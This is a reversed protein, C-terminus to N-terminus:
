ANLKELILLKIHQIRELLFRHILDGHCDQSLIALNDSSSARSLAAECHTLDLNVFQREVRRREFASLEHTAINLLENRVQIAPSSTDPIAQDHDILHIQRAASILINTANRDTNAILEDFAIAGQLVSWEQLALEIERSSRVARALSPVNVFESGFGMVPERLRLQAIAAPNVRILYPRPIPLGMSRGVLACLCEIFLRRPDLLKLIVQTKGSCTHVVARWVEGDGPYPQALLLDGVPLHDEHLNYAAEAM